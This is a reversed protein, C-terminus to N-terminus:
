LNGAEIRQSQSCTALEQIVICVYFVTSILAALTKYKYLDQLVEQL